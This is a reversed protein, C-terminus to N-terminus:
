DLKQELESIEQVSADTIEDIEKAHTEELQTKELQLEQVREDKDIVQKRLFDMERMSEENKKSTSQLKMNALKQAELKQQMDIKQNHIQKELSDINKDKDAIQITLEQILPRQADYQDQLKSSQSLADKHM